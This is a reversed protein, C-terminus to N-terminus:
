IQYCETKFYMSEDKIHVNTKLKIESIFYKFTLSKNEKLGNKFIWKRVFFFLHKNM